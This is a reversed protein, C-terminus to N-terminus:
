SKETISKKKGSFINGLISIIKERLIDKFTRQYIREIYANSSYLRKHQNNLEQIQKNLEVILAILEEDSYERDTDIDIKKRYSMDLFDNINKNNKNKKGKSMFEGDFKRQSQM